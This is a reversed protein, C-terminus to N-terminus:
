RGQGNMEAYVELVNNETDRFFLTRHGFAQDRPGDLISVRKALLEQYCVDVEAPSVRFALQVAASSKPMSGDEWALWPGRPRLALRTNGVRFVVWTATASELEFKMTSLYFERARKLDICPLIVYDIQEIARLSM